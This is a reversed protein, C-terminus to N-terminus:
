RALRAPFGAVYEDIAWLYADCKASGSVSGNFRGALNELVPLKPGTAVLRHYLSSPVMPQFCMPVADLVGAATSAVNSTSHVLPDYVVAGALSARFQAVVDQLVGCIFVSCM